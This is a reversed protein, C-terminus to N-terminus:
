KFLGSESMGGSGTGGGFGGSSSGSSSGSSGSRGSGPNEMNPSVWIEAYTNIEKEYVKIVAWRTDKRFLLQTLQSKFTSVLQWNDKAMNSEFFAILSDMEVRGKLGLVGATLGSSKIIFTTDRDLKMRGPILIDSFDQYASADQSSKSMSSGGKSKNAGPMFSCASLCFVSSLLVCGLGITVTRKM